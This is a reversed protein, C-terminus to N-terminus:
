LALRYPNSKNFCNFFYIYGLEKTAILKNKSKDRNWIDAYEQHLLAEPSITVINNEVILLGTTNM